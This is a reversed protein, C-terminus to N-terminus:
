STPFPFLIKLSPKKFTLQLASDSVIYWYCPRLNFDVQRENSPIGCCWANTMQFIHAQYIIYINCINICKMISYWVVANRLILM